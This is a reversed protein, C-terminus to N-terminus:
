GRRQALQIQIGHIQTGHTATTDQLTEIEHEVHKKNDILSQLQLMLAGHNDDIKKEIKRQERGLNRVVFATVSVGAFFLGVPLYTGEGSIVTAEAALMVSGAIMGWAGTIGLSASPSM